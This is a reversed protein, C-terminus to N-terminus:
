RRPLRCSSRWARTATTGSTRPWSSTASTRCRAAAPTIWRQIVSALWAGNSSLGGHNEVLVNIERQPPSNPSGASGMPPWGASNTLHAQRSPTSGSRTADWSSHRTWGAITTRSRRASRAADDPDGIAGEGDCMILLNAVGHDQARDKLEQLYARDQAKDKFFSNVYEVAEIGYDRHATAPFDLNDLEGAYLARHLSWQALSIRFLPEDRTRTCSLLTLPELLGLAPLIGGSIEVFRRRSLPQSM